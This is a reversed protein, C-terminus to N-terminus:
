IADDWKRKRRRVGTAVDFAERAADLKPFNMEAWRDLPQLVQSLSHGIDTLRYEVHAAHTTLDIREILGNRQLGRLTQTLMKQTIGGIKRRLSSHRMSHESLASIVLMPWKGSVLELAHRASCSADFVSGPQSYSGGDKLSASQNLDGEVSVTM